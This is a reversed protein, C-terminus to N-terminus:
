WARRALTRQFFAPSFPVCTHWVTFPEAMPQGRVTAATSSVWRWGSPLTAM